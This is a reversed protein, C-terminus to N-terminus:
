EMPASGPFPGRNSSVCRRRKVANLRSGRALAPPTERTYEGREGSAKRNFASTERAATLIARASRRRKVFFPNGAHTFDPSYGRPRRRRTVPSGAADHGYEACATRRGEAVLTEKRAKGTALALRQLLQEPAVPCHGIAHGM